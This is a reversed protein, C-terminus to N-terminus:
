IDPFISPENTVSMCNCRAREWCGMFIGDESMSRSVVNVCVCVCVFPLRRGVCVCLEVHTDMYLSNLVIVTLASM